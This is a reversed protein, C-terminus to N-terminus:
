KCAPSSRGTAVRLAAQPFRLHTRGSGRRGGEASHLRQVQHGACHLLAERQGGGAALGRALAEYFGTERRSVARHVLSAPGRGAPGAPFPECGAVAYSHTVVASGKDETFEMLTSRDNGLFEVLAEPQRRDIQDLRESPVNVFNASLDALLREFRLREESVLTLQKYATIDRIIHVDASLLGARENM